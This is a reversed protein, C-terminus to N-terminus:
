HRMKADYFRDDPHTNRLTRNPALRHPIPFDRVVAAADTNQTAQM